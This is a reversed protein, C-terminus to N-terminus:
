FNGKFPYEGFLIYYLVVGLSWIDISKDYTKGSIIEPAMFNPTGCQSKVTHDDILKSFGFDGIKCVFNKSKSIKKLLINECKIDRHIINMKHISQVGRVIEYFIILAEDFKIM